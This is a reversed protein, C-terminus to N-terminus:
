TNTGSTQTLKVCDRLLHKLYKYFVEIKGNSQLSYPSSFSCDIGLQKLVNDMLQNKFEAGNDSLIFHPCM